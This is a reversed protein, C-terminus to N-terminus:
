TVRSKPETADAFRGTAILERLRNFGEWVEVYSTALPSIALRICDPQRYDGIVNAFEGFTTSAGSFVYMKGAHKGPDRLVRTIAQAAGDVVAIARSYRM